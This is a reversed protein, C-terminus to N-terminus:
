PPWIPPVYSPVPTTFYMTVYGNSWPPDNAEAEADSFALDIWPVSRDPWAGVDGIVGPGYGPIYVTALKLARYWNLYTAVVGKDLPIGSSTGYLCGSVGSRCPTYYTAFVNVARYYEITVGNVVITKIVIKTGYGTIATKPEVFARPEEEVRAVEAGNEYRVRTRSASIGDQGEQVVSLTDLEAEPDEVFDTDHPVIEQALQVSEIVRVVRIAGDAPMPQEVDPESYDLGQLALGAEALADGVNAASSYLRLQQDGLSIAIPKATILVAEISETLPTNAAPQLSDANKLDIGAETLAQGLTPASSLVESSTGNIELTITIARKLELLLVPQDPLTEDLTLTDGALLLRDGPGLTLGLQALVIAPNREGSDLMHIEGDAAVQIRSARTVAIVMDDGIPMWGGPEVRDRPGVVVGAADLAGDVTIARSSVEVATGDVLITVTRTLSLYGLALVLLAAALAVWRLRATNM